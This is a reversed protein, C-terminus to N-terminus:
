ISKLGKEAYERRLKEHAKINGRPLKSKKTQYEKRLDPNAVTGGAIANPNRATGLTQLRANKSKLAKAFAGKFNEPTVGAQLYPALETMEVDNPDITFGYVQAMGRAESITQEQVKQVDPDITTGPAPATQSVQGQAPEEKSGPPNEVGTYAKSIIRQRAQEALKPDVPAGLEKQLAINEDFSKLNAQIKKNIRSEAQMSYSQAQRRIEENQAAMAQEFDNKSVFEDKGGDAVGAQTEPAAVGGPDITGPDINEGVM